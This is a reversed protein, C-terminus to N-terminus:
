GMRGMECGVWCSWLGRSACLFFPVVTVLVWARYWIGFGKMVRNGDLEKNLM